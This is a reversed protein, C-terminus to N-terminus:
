LGMDFSKKVKERGSFFELEVRTGGRGSLREQVQWLDWEEAAKGDISILRTGNRVGAEALRKALPVKRNLGTVLLVREGLSLGKGSVSKLDVERAFDYALEVGSKLRQPSEEWASKAFWLRGHGIDFVVVTRGLLDLGVRAQPPQNKGFARLEVPVVGAATLKSDCELSGSEISKGGLRTPDVSHVTSWRIGATKTSGKSQAARVFTCEASFFGEEDQAIEVWSWDPAPAFRGEEYIFAVSRSKLDQAPFLAVAEKSLFDRGLVGDCCPAISDPPTFLETDVLGVTGLSARYGAVDLETVRLWPGPTRGGAWPHIGPKRDPREALQPNL